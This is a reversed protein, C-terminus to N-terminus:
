VGQHFGLGGAPQPRAAGRRPAFLPWKKGQRPHGFSQYSAQRDVGEGGNQGSPKRKFGHPLQQAM